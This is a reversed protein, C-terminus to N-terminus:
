SETSSSVPVLALPGRKQNIEQFREFHLVLIIENIVAVVGQGVTLQHVGAVGGLRYVLERLGLQVVVLDQELVNARGKAADHEPNAIALVVGACLYKFNMYESFALFIHRYRWINKSM